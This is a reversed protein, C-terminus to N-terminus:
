IIKLCFEKSLVQDSKVLFCQRNSEALLVYSAACAYDTLHVLTTTARRLRVKVTRLNAQPNDGCTLLISKIVNASILKEVRLDTVLVNFHQQKEDWLSWNSVSIGFGISLCLSGTCTIQPCCKSPRPFIQQRSIKCDTSLRGESTNSHIM